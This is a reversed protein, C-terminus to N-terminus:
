RRHHAIDAAAHLAPNHIERRSHHRVGGQNRHVFAPAHSQIGRGPRRRDAQDAVAAAIHELTIAAVDAKHHLQRLSARRLAHLHRQRLRAAAVVAQLHDLLLIPLGDSRQGAHQVAPARQVADHEAGIRVGNVVNKIQAVLPDHVAINTQIRRAAVHRNGALRVRDRMVHRHIAVMGQPQFPLKNGQALIAAGINQQRGPGDLDHRLAIAGPATCKGLNIRDLGVNRDLIRGQPGGVILAVPDANLGRQIAARVLRRVLPFALATKQAGQQIALVLRELRQLSKRIRGTRNRGPGAHCVLRIDVDADIGLQNGVAINRDQRAIGYFHFEAGGNGLHCPHRYPDQLINRVDGEIAGQRRGLRNGHACVVLLGQRDLQCGLMHTIPNGQTAGATQIAHRCHNGHTHAHHDAVGRNVDAARGHQLGAQAGVDASARNHQDLAALTSIDGNEGFGVM